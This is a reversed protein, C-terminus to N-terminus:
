ILKKAIIIHGDRYTEKYLTELGFFSFMEELVNMDFVHHHLCRNEFNKLSRKKFQDKDKIIDMSLDHKEIIEDLHSMDSEDVNNEYDQLLHPFAVIDRNHDCCSKKNPLVLLLLGNNKIVRLWEQVAKLPNAIHELCHASIVFDYYESKILSLDTAELIYQYGTGSGYNFFLGEKIDGEWITTTSFNCGDLHKIFPYVPLYTGFVSSPGGVELGTKDKLLSIIQQYNPSRWLFIRRYIKRLFPRVGFKKLLQKYSLM